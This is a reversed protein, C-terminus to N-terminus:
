DLGEEAEKPHAEKFRSKLYEIRAGLGRSEAFTWLTFLFLLLCAAGYAWFIYPQFNPDRAVGTTFGTVVKAGEVPAGPQPPPSSQALAGGAMAFLAMATTNWNM